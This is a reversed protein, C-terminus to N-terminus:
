TPRHNIEQLAEFSELDHAQSEDGVSLGGGDRQTIRYAWAVSLAPGLYPRPRGM